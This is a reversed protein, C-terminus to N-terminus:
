PVKYFFLCRILSIRDSFLVCSLTKKLAMTLLEVKSPEDVLIHVLRNKPRM